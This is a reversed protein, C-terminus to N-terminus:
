RYGALFQKRVNNAIWWSMKMAIGDNACILTFSKQTGTALMAAKMTAANAPTFVYQGDAAKYAVWDRHGFRAKQRAEQYTM